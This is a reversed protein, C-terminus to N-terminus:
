HKTFFKSIEEAVKQCGARNLHLGGGDDYERLINAANTAPQGTIIGAMDLATAGPVDNTMDRLIWGNVQAIGNRQAPNFDSDPWITLIAPEIGAGVSQQALVQRRKAVQM